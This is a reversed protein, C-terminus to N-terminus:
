QDRIKQKTDLELKFDNALCLIYIYSYKMALFKIKTYKEMSGSLPLYFPNPALKQIQANPLYYPDILEIDTLESTTM